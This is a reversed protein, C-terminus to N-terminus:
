LFWWPSPIFGCNGARGSPPGTTMQNSCLFLIRTLTPFYFKGENKSKEEGKNISATQFLDSSVTFTTCFGDGAEWCGGGRLSHTFIVVVTDDTPTGKSRLGALSCGRHINRSRCGFM